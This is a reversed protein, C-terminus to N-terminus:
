RISVPTIFCARLARLKLLRETTSLTETKLSSDSDQPVTLLPHSIGKGGVKEIIERAMKGYDLRM